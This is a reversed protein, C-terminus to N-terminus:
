TDAEPIEDLQDRLTQAEAELESLRDRDAQTDTGAQVARLPRMTDRDIRDLQRIQRAESPLRPQHPQLLSPSARVHETRHHREDLGIVADGRVASRDGVAGAPPRRELDAEM